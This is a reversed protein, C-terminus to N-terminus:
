VLSSQQALLRRAWCGALVYVLAGLVVVGQLGWSVALSVAAASGLVGAVMNVGCIWPTLMTTMPSLLRLAMPFLLGMLAGLPALLLM